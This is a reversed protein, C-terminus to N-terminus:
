QLEKKLLYPTCVIGKVVTQIASINSPVRFCIPKKKDLLEVSAEQTSLYTSLIARYQIM